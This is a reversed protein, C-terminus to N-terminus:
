KIQNNKEYLDLLQNSFITKVVFLSGSESLHGYDVQLLDEGKTARVRCKYQNNLNDKQCLHDILSIYKMRDSYKIDKMKKDLEILSEEKALVEVM